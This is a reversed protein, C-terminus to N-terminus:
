RLHTRTAHPRRTTRGRPAHRVSERRVWWSPHTWRVGPRPPPRTPHPRGSRYGTPAPVEVGSPRQGIRESRSPPPRLGARGPRRKMLRREEDPAAWGCPMPSDRPRLFAHGRRSRPSRVLKPPGVPRRAPDDALARAESCGCGGAGAYHRFDADRTILEVGHDICSQAILTDALRARRGRALVRARLLGAREWFGDLVDLRPIRLLTDRLESGLLPDSFLETLVVPPLIAQREELAVGVAEVDAGDAGSLYAILASTDVAIM